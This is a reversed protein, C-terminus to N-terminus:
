NNKNRQTMVFRGVIKSDYFRTYGCETCCLSFFFVESKEVDIPCTLIQPTYDTNNALCFSNNAHCVPCIAPINKAKCFEWLEENTISRLINAPIDFDYSM